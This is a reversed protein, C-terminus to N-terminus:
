LSRQASALVVGFLPTPVVKLAEKFTTGTTIIDDVLIVEGVKGSYIFDRPHSRRFELSKGAYKVKSQSRLVGFLPKLHKSEMAKALIATHSYGGKLRDDIPVVFAELNLAKAFPTLSNKALISFISAGIPSGKTTLLEKIEEYSYFSVVWFNPTLEITTVSPKLYLEQCRKCIVELSLNLCSLCRM